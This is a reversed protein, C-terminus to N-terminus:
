TSVEKMGLSTKLSTPIVKVGMGSDCDHSILASELLGSPIAACNVKALTRNSRGSQDHIARAVLKKGTGTEGLILVSAQTPAVIEIQSLVSRMASSRGVFERSVKCKSRTSRARPMDISDLLHPEDRKPESQSIWTPSVKPYESKFVPALPM